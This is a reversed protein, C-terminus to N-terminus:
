AKKGNYKQMAQAIGQQWYFELCEVVQDLVGNIIIEEDKSMKGLVFSSLDRDYDALTETDIGVRIRPFDVGKYKLTEKISKAGNHTGASGSDKIRFEGIKLDVDDYIVIIDEVEVKYYELVKQVAFGSLNMYTQPKILIVKEGGVVISTAASKFKDVVSWPEAHYKEAMKDVCIFGINHRTSAYENGPNGLGFVIKM